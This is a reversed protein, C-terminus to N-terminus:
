ASGAFVEVPVGVRHRVRDAIEELEAETLATVYTEAPPRAVTYVQVLSVRGAAGIEKLREVYADIEAEAPGAGRLRLFM